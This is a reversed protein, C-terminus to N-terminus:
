ASPASQFLRNSVRLVARYAAQQNYLHAMQEVLNAQAAPRAGPTPEGRESPPRPSVDDLSRGLQELAEQMEGIAVSVRANDHADLADRAAIIAAFLAPLGNQSGQALSTQLNTTHDLAYAALARNSLTLDHVQEVLVRIGEQLRTLRRCDDASLEALSGDLGKGLRQRAEVLKSLNDLLLGKREALAALRPADGQALALREEQTLHLLAQRARFERVLLSAISEVTNTPTLM